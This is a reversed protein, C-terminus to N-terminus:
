FWFSISISFTLAEVQHWWGKPIYLVQGPRLIVVLHETECLLVKEVHEQSLNSNNFSTHQNKNRNLKESYKPHILIVRKVGVVQALLNDCQDFHFPTFTGPMGFWFLEIVNRMTISDADHGEDRDEADTYQLPCYDSKLQPLQASFNHQAIYGIPRLNRTASLHNQHNTTHRSENENEYPTFEYETATFEDETATFVFTELYSRLSIIDQTWSPPNSNEPKSQDHDHNEHNNNYNLLGLEVPFYRHGAIDDWFRPDTWKKLAPWYDICDTLLIPEKSNKLFDNMDPESLVKIPVSPRKGAAFGGSGPRSDV